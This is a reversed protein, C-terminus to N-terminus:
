FKDLPGTEQAWNRTKKRSPLNTSPTTASPDKATSPRLPLIQLPVTGAEQNHQSHCKYLDRPGLTKMGLVLVAVTAM